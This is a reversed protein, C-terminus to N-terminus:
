MVSPKGITSHNDLSKLEKVRVIRFLFCTEPAVHPSIHVRHCARSITELRPLISVLRIQISQLQKLPKSSLSGVLETLLARKSDMPSSLSFSWLNRKTLSLWPFHNKSVIRASTRNKILLVWSFWLNNLTENPLPNLRSLPQRQQSLSLLSSRLAHASAMRETISPFQQWM